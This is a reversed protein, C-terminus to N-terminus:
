FLKLQETIGLKELQLQRIRSQVERKVEEHKRTPYGKIKLENGDHVIYRKKEKIIGLKLNETSYTFPCDLMNLSNISIIRDTDIYVINHPNNELLENYFLDLYKPILQPIINGSLSLKGYIHNVEIKYKLYESHSQLKLNERNEIFFKIKDIDDVSHINEDHIMSMISPYMLTFDTVLLNEIIVDKYNFDIWVFGGPYFLLKEKKLLDREKILIEKHRQPLKM